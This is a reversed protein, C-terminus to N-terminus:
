GARGPGAFVECLGKHLGQAEEALDRVIEGALKIERVAGGVSQGALLDM